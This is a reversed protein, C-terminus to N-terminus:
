SQKRGGLKLLQLYIPLRALFVSVKLEQSELLLIDRIPLRSTIKGRLSQAVFDIKKPKSIDKTNIKFESGLTSVSFFVLFM